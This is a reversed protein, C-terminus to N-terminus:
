MLPSTQLRSRVSYTNRLYLGVQITFKQLSLRGEPSSLFNWADPSVLKVLVSARRSPARYRHDLDYGASLRNM